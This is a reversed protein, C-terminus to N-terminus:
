EPAELEIIAAIIECVQRLLTASAAGVVRAKRDVWDVARVQDALVVGSVGHGDPVPIEFNWGRVTSTVPVILCRGTLQNFRTASIVLAPRFGAQEHGQGSLHLKLFDGRKPAVRHESTV